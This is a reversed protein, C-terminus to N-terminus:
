PATPVPLRPTATPTALGFFVVLDDNTENTVWINGSADPALDFPDALNADFGYGGQKLISGDANYTTNPSIGTGPALTNANGALESISSGHYNVVWINQAADIVVKQPDYLGGNQAGCSGAPAGTHGCQSSVGITIVNGQNNYCAAGVSANSDCGPAIESISAKYYNSVWANGFKDTAVGNAGSCCSSNSLLNGSADVHTVTNGGTNALWAGGNPDGSVDSPETSYPYGANVINYVVGSPNQTYTFATVTSDGNNAVFVEGNPGSSVAEPYYIYAANNLNGIVNGLAYGTGVGDLAAIGGAGGPAEQIDVWILNNTDVTLGYIEGIAQGSGTGFASSGYGFGNPYTAPSALTSGQPSFASVAGYYDAVWVNGYNDIGVGTPKQLGGGTITMSLTWDNPAMALTTAYAPTPLILGYTNAVNVGPHKVIYLAASLTDSTCATSCLGITQYLNQCPTTGDSNVCTAIVDALAYVKGTEITNSVTGTTASNNIAMLASGPSTGASPDAILQANLFANALGANNTASSAVNSYSTMFPALAWAAAVTTVENIAITYTQTLNTCPGIADMLVIASNAPNTALGPNGGTAVVYVQPTYGTAAAPCTFDGVLSFKGNADTTANALSTGTGTGMLNTAATGNGGTGAVWLAVQAGVIPQQGGMVTGQMNLSGSVSHLGPEFGCGSLAVAIVLLAALPLVFRQISGDRCAM